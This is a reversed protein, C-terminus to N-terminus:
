DQPPPPTVPDGPQLRAGRAFDAAAMPGRSEPQVRTLLLLTGDATAVLVGDKRVAAVTGPATGDSPASEPRAELVKLTKGAVTVFAGPRPFTGRVRRSLAAAGEASPDLFGM